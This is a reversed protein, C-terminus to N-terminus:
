VDRVILQRRFTLVAFPLVVALTIALQGIAGWVIGPAGTPFYAERLGFILPYTPLLRLLPPSFSPMLYALGPLGLATMLLIGAFIFQGLSSFLNAVVMMALTIVASGLFVVPVIALWNVSPGLILVTVVATFLMGLLFMALVRALLYEGMSAPTTRIARLSREDKEAFLLTAGLLLGVMGAETYVWFPVMSQNYPPAPAATGPNLSRTAFRPYGEGEGRLAAAQAQLSATLLNRTQENEWGQFTIEFREPVAGGSARIGIRSYGEELAAAYDAASDVVTLGGAGAGAQYFAKVVGGDTQDWLVIAQTTDLEAPILFLTAAIYLAAVVLITAVYYNRVLLRWDKIALSWIRRLVASM